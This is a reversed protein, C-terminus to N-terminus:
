IGKTTIQSTLVEFLKERLGKINRPQIGSYIIDCLIKWINEMLNLDPSNSPWSILDLNQTKFFEMTINAVHICCNDQVLGIKPKINFKIIHVGFTKLTEIYKGADQRGELVNVATLGNPMLMNWVM